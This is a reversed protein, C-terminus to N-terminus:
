IQSFEDGLSEGEAKSVRGRLLGELLEMNKIACPSGVRASTVYCQRQEFEAGWQLRHAEPHVLPEVSASLWFIHLAMASCRIDVQPQQATPRLATGSESSLHLFCVLFLATNWTWASLIPKQHIPSHHTTEVTDVQISTPM